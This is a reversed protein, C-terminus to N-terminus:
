NLRSWGMLMTSGLQHTLGRADPGPRRRRRRSLRQNFTAAAFWNAKDPLPDHRRQFTITAGWSDDTVSERVKKGGLGGRTSMWPWTEGGSLAREVLKAGALEGQQYGARM